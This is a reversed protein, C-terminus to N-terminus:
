PNFVSQLKKNLSEGLLDMDLIRGRPDILINGPIKEVRYVRVM